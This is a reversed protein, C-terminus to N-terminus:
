PKMLGLNAEFAPSPHRDGKATKHLVHLRLISQTAIAFGLFTAVGSGVPAGPMSWFWCLSPCVMLLSYETGKFVGMSVM